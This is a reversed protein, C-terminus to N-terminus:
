FPHKIVIGGSGSPGFQARWSHHCSESCLVFKHYNEAVARLM